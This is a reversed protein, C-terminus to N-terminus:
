TLSYTSSKDSLVGVVQEPDVEVDLLLLVHLPLPHFHDLLDPLVEDLNVVILRVVDMLPVPLDEDLHLVAPLLDQLTQCLHPGLLNNGIDFRERPIQVPLLFPHALCGHDVEVLLAAVLALILLLKVVLGVGFVLALALPPFPHHVLPLLPRLSDWFLLSQM